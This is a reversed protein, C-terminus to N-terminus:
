VALCLVGRGTDGHQRDSMASLVGQQLHQEVRHQQQRHTHQRERGPHRTPHIKHPRENQSRDKQNKHEAQITM